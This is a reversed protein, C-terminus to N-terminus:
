KDWSDQKCCLLQPYTSVSDQLTTALIVTAHFVEGSDVNSKSEEDSGGGLDDSEPQPEFDSDDDSLYQTVEQYWNL